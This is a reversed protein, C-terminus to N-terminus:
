EGGKGKATRWEEVIAGAPARDEEAKVLVGLTEDVERRSERLPRTGDAGYARLATLWDLFEATAPKKRLGSEQGRLRYFLALADDLVAAEPGVYGGIRAAVIERLRQGEQKPFDIHYYVCRRLFADPLSKESNSTLVVVPRLEQRARVPEAGLAGLEPVRFYLDKIENLIDNPFDRPAKDIEDILVVHPRPGDFEYREPLLDEVKAREHTHLIAKGLANYTVYDLPNKSGHGTQVARFLGLSDFTYFLDRAVSSSKTEFKLPEGWNLEWALSYALQTKGTGPEGTLLLPRGLTLAVNVAAALADDAEYGSPDDHGERLSPPIVAPAGPRHLKPKGNYLRRM